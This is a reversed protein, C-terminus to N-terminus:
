EVKVGRIGYNIMLPYLARGCKRDIWGLAPQTFTLQFPWLHCGRCQVADFGCAKMIRIADGPFLWNETGRFRRLRTLQSLRLVPYWLKNPSTICVTGGPRCVRCMEEIAKRPDPTHEICESSIVMDFSSTEFPLSCVDGVVGKCGLTDRVHRVLNEGIDLVTLDAGRTIIQSSIRGTGCGAELVQLDRLPVDKLLMAFILTSRQRVDYANMFRDFDEGLKDFYLSDMELAM